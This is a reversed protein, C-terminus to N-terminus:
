KQYTKEKNMEISIYQKEILSNIIELVENQEMFLDNSIKKNDFILKENSNLFYILMIFENIDLDFKKYYKVLYNPIIMHNNVLMLKEIVNKNM